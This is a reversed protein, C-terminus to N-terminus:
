LFDPRKKDRGQDLPSSKSHVFFRKDQSRLCIKSSAVIVAKRRTGNQNMSSLFCYIDKFSLHGSVSRLPSYAHLNKHTNVAMSSQCFARHTMGSEEKHSLPAHLMQMCETVLPKLVSCDVGDANRASNLHRNENWSDATVSFTWVIFWM